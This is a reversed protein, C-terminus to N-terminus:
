AVIEVCYFLITILTRGGGEEEEEEEGWFYFVIGDRPSYRVSRFTLYLSVLCLLSALITAMLPVVTIM